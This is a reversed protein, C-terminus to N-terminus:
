LSQLEIIIHELIHGMYTGEKLRELFGGPTGESCEHEWMSPLLAVLREAFGPIKNSPLEEYKGIDARIELVPCYAWINAGRLVKIKRIAIGAMAGELVYINTRQHTAAM